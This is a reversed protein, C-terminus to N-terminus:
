HLVLRWELPSGLGAHSSFAFTDMVVCIMFLKFVRTLLCIMLFSLFEQGWATRRQKVVCTGLPTVPDRSFVVLHM